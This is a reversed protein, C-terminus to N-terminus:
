LTRDALRSVTNLLLNWDFWAKNSLHLIWGLLKEPSVLFTTLEIAYRSHQQHQELCHDCVLIWTARRTRNYGTDSALFVAPQACFDCPITTM